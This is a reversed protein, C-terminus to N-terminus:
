LSLCQGREMRCLVSLSQLAWQELVRIRAKARYMKRRKFKKENVFYRKRLSARWQPEFDLWFDDVDGFLKLVNM